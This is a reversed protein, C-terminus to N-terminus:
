KNNKIILNSMCLTLDMQMNLCEVMQLENEKGTISELREDAKKISEELLKYTYEEYMNDTEQLSQKKKAIDLTYLFNQVIIEKLQSTTIENDYTTKEKVGQIILQDNELINNKAEYSTNVVLLSTLIIAFIKKM